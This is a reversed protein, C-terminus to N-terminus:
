PQVAMEALAIDVAKRVVPLTRQDLMSYYSGPEGLVVHDLLAIGLGFAGDAIRKTFEFDTTSPTTDGSPHNHCLVIGSAGSMVAARFVQSPEASCSALGGRAAHHFGRAKNKADLHFVLLMEQDLTGIIQEAIRAVTRSDGFIHGYPAISETVGAFTRMRRHVEYEYLKAM